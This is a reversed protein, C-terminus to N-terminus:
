PSHSLCCLILSEETHLCFSKDEQQTILEEPNGSSKFFEQQAPTARGEVRVSVAQTQLASHLITGSGVTRWPEQQVEECVAPLVINNRNLPSLTLCLPCLKQRKKGRDGHFNWAQKMSKFLNGITTRLVEKSNVNVASTSFSIDQNREMMRFSGLSQCTKARAALTERPWM